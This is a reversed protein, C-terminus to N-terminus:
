RLGIGQPGATPRACTSSPRRAPLTAFAGIWQPQHCSCGREMPCPSGQAQLAMTTTVLKRATDVADLLNTAAIHFADSATKAQACWGNHTDYIYLCVDMDAASASTRTM